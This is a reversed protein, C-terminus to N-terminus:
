RPGQWGMIAGGGYPAYGGGYPAYGGTTPGYPNGRYYRYQFLGHPNGPASWAPPGWYRRYAPRGYWGYHRGRRWGHYQGPRRGYYGYRYHRPYRYARRSRRQVYEIRLDDPVVITAPVPAATAPVPAAAAAGSLGVTLAAAATLSAIRM